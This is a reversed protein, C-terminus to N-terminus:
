TDRLIQRITRNIERLDKEFILKYFCRLTIIVDFLSNHLNKPDHSFLHKHLESLKPYKYEKSKKNPNELKCIDATNKMTCFCKSSFQKGKEFYDIIQEYADDNGSEEKLRYLEIILMKVDFELNHGIIYDAEKVKLYFASLSNYLIVGQTQCKYQTIGHIQICEPSIVIDKKIKIVNDNIFVNNKDTDYLVYSFQLIHPQKESESLDAYKDIKGTTETDFVLIKM